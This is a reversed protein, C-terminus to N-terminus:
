HPLEKLMPRIQLGCLLCRPLLQFRKQYSVGAGTRGVDVFEDSLNAFGYWGCLIARHHRTCRQKHLLEYALQLNEPVCDLFVILLDFGDGLLVGVKRDHTRKRPDAFCRRRPQNGRESCLTLAERIRPANLAVAADRRYALGTSPTLPYVGPPRARLEEFLGELFPCLM